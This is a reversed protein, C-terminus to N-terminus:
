GRSTVEFVTVGLRYARRVAVCVPHRCLRHVVTRPAAILVDSNDVVTEERRPGAALPGLSADNSYVEEAPGLSERLQDVRELQRQTLGRRDIVYGIRM